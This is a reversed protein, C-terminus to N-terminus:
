VGKGGELGGGGGERGSGEESEMVRWGWAWSEERWGRGENNGEHGRGEELERPKWGM